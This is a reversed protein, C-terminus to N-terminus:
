TRNLGAAFFSEIKKAAHHYSAKLAGVSTGVIAAIEEYTLEDFYRMVFVQKQKDPLTDIAFQLQKQTDDGDFWPDDALLASYAYEGGELAISSRRYKENIFTIAENSAIRYIWTYLKSEQRFQPLGKWIKIFCNQVVDDADDHNTVMRRVHWYIKKTYAAVLHKYGLERTDQNLCLQVIEIDTMLRCTAFRGEFYLGM